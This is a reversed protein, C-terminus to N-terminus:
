WFFEPDGNEDYYTDEKKKEGEVIERIRRELEEKTDGYHIPTWLNRTFFLGPTEILEFLEWPKWSSGTFRIKFRTKPM